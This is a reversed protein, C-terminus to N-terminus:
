LRYHHKCQYITIIDKEVSYIIRHQKTIRRSWLGQLIYKLPEPKGISEFPNKEIHKLLLIIREIIKPNNKKWYDLDQKANITWRITM